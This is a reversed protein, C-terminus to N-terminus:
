LKNKFLALQRAVENAKVEDGRDRYIIEAQFLAEMSDRYHEQNMALYLGLEEWLQPNERDTILQEKLRDIQSQRKAKPSFLTVALSKLMDWNATQEAAIERATPIFVRDARELDATTQGLFNRMKEAIERHHKLAIAQERRDSTYFSQSMTFEKGSILTIYLECCKRYSSDSDENQKVNVARITEFQYTKIWKKRFLNIGERKLKREILDFTWVIFYPKFLSYIVISIPIGLMGMGWVLIFLNIGDLNSPISDLVRGKSMISFTWICFTGLSIIPMLVNRWGRDLAASQSLTGRQFTLQQSTSQVLQLELERDLHHSLIRM